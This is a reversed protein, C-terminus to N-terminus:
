KNKNALQGCAGEIDKGFSFRQTVSVGREELIKRFSATREQSSAEFVGTSNYPILNVFYLKGKVIKAIEEAEKNSDNVGKIMIYEFMVRRGTKEIYDDVAKLVNDLPYRKNIPMIESRITNNPAHLSLALNVQLKESSLKKIGEVVGATSISFNRSGLNFGDKDNLKRIAKLVNDYNLFPEGMGMFVINTIKEDEKKLLRAFFIVQEVIESFTLNRKFGMKGTACFKCGLSCGVQSSVCITNRGDRNKMLVAEIKLGDELNIVAKVTKKNKSSFLDAEISIPCEKNLEEKINSPLVTSQQWDDILDLYINKEAQKLRFGQHEELVEKIKEINM